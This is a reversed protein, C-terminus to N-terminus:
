DAECSKTTVESLVPCICDSKSDLFLQIEQQADDKFNTPVKEDTSEEEINLIDEKIECVVALQDTEKFDYSFDFDSDPNYQPMESAEM